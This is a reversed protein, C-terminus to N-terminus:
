RDTGPAPQPDLDFLSALGALDLVRALNDSVGRLGLRQDHARAHNHLQVWSGLGSSDVFTLKTLDLVLTACGPTGLADLGAVRMAQAGAVDLEGVLDLVVLGSDAAQASVAFDTM